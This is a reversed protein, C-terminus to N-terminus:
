DASEQESTNRRESQEKLRKVRGIRQQIALRVFGAPSRHEWAALEKVQELLDPDMSVRALSPKRMEELQDTTTHM